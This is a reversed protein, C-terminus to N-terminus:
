ENDEELGFMERVVDIRLLGELQGNNYGRLQVTPLHLVKNIVARTIMEMQELEKDSVRHKHKDLELRRIEELKERLAIITPTVQLSKKWATFNSIEQDIIILAEPIEQRRKDLNKDVIQQLGDMDNLFVNELRNIKPDFDRPVAIDILFLPRSGRRGQIERIDSESLIFDPASTAGIVVDVEPLVSHMEDFPVATGNLDDALKAAKEYTRNSILLQKVGKEILHQAALTGTEGAGILLVKHKNLDKFIKQALEVAAFAVSVAGMAIATETRVRKGVTFALNLLRNLILKTSGLGSAIRYADKVQGLIQPEGLIMSDMGAAVKFLHGIAADGEYFYMVKFDAPDFSKRTAKLFNELTSRVDPSSGALVYIETRNCTSLIYGEEIGDCKLLKELAAPLENEAYAAHDRIDVTAVRHNLGLLYIQFINKDM